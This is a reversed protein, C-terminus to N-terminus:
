DGIKDILNMCEFVLPRFYSFRLYKMKSLKEILRYYNITKNEEDFQYLEILLGDLFKEWEGEKERECLLGYLRNKLKDRYAQRVRTEYEM